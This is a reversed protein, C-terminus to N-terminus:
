YGLHKMWKNFMSLGSVKVNDDCTIYPMLFVFNHQKNFEEQTIDGPEYTTTPSWAMITGIGTSPIQDWVDPNTPPPQNINTETAQYTQVPGFVPTVVAGQGSGCDDNISIQLNSSVNLGYSNLDVGLVAGAASILAKM